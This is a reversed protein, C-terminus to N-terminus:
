GAIYLQPTSIAGVNFYQLVLAAIDPSVSLHAAVLQHSFREILADLWTNILASHPALKHLKSTGLVAQTM